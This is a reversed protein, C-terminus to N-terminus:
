TRYSPAIAPASAEIIADLKRGAKKRRRSFHGLGRSFNSILFGTKHFARRFDFLRFDPM